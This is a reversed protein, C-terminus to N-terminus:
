GRPVLDQRPLAREVLVEAELVVGRGESDPRADGGRQGVGVFPQALEGDGPRLFAASRAGLGSLGDMDYRVGPRLRRWAQMAPLPMKGTPGHEHHCLLDDHLLFHRVEICGPFLDDGGSGPVVFARLGTGQRQERLRKM